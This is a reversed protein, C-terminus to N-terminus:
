GNFVSKALSGTAILNAGTGLINPIIEQGARIPQKVRVKAIAYMLEKLKSKPVPMDTRVPLLRSGGEVLVTATFTRVPSKFEATVYKKGEKCQNGIMSEIEGDDSIKLAVRCGLPCGTCIIEQETM